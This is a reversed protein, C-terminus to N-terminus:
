GASFRIGSTQAARLCKNSSNSSVRATTQISSQRPFTSRSSLIL